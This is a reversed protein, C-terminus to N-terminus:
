AALNAFNLISMFAGEGSVGEIVIAISFYISFTFLYYFSYIDMWDYNFNLSCTYNFSTKQSFIFLYNIVGFSSNRSLGLLINESLILM